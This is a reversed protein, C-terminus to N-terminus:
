TLRRRYVDLDPISDIGRVGVGERKFVKKFTRFIIAFDGTATIKNVYTIDDKLRNEWTTHNRGNVQALGTLGPRVAHRISEEKTYYPLYQPVLPRPGVISMDGNLINFLEPLEDVSTSRLFKGFSTLRISDPLLNGQEDKQDTMTRFKYITFIRENKGPRQQTFLIPSGLKIRVLVAVVLLVPSLMVLALLALTFDLPRKFFREYFTITRNM